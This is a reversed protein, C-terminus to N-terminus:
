SIASVLPSGCKIQTVVVIGEFPCLSPPLPFLVFNVLLSNLLCALLSLSLLLNRLIVKKYNCMHRFSLWHIIAYLLTTAICPVYLSVHISTNIFRAM